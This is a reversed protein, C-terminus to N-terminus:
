SLTMEKPFGEWYGWVLHTVGNSRHKEKVASM